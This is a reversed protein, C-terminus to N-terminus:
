ICSYEQLYWIGSSHGYWSARLSKLSGDTKVLSSSSLHDDGSSSTILQSQHTKFKKQMKSVIHCNYRNRSWPNILKKTFSFPNLLSLTVLTCGWEKRDIIVLWGWFIALLFVFRLANTIHEEIWTKYAISFILVALFLDEWPRYSNISHILSSTFIKGKNYNM